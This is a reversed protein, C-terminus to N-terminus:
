SHSLSCNKFGFVGFEVENKQKCKGYM